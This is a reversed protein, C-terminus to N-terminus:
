LILILLLACFLAGGLSCMFNSTYKNGIKKEEFHGLVSDVMNGFFGAVMVVVFVAVSGGIAFVTFGVLFSAVFGMATGFWTVGGSAGRRVKEMTLLDVPNDKLEGFESAFKDATIACVSAVFSFVIIQLQVQSAGTVACVFYLIVIATPVLGNAAVNKWGRVREYGKIKAKDDERARTALASLVLFDVLVAVFFWWMQLGFYLVVVCMFLALLVGSIDLTFVSAM